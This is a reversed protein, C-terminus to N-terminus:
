GHLMATRELGQALMDLLEPPDTPALGAEMLAKASWRAAGALDHAEIQWTTEDTWSGHGACLRHAPEADDAPAKFSAPFDQAGYEFPLGRYADVSFDDPVEFTRKQAKVSALVIRDDRFVRMGSKTRDWAVFFTHEDHRFVGYIDVDRETAAGHADHYDFTVGHREAYASMLEEWGATQAADSRATSGLLAHTQGSGLALKDHARRLRDLYAENGPHAAQQQSSIYAELLMAIEMAPRTFSPNAQMYTAQKDVRWATQDGATKVEELYIGNARLDERMRRFTREYSEAQLGTAGLFGREAMQWVSMPESLAWFLLMLREDAKVQPAIAEIESM